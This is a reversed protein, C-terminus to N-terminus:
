WKDAIKKAEEQTYFDGNEIERVANDLDQNYQEATNPKKTLKEELLSEIEKESLDNKESALRQVEQEKTLLIELKDMVSSRKVKFLKKIFEYKRAELEM